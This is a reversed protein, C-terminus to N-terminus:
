QGGRRRPVRVDGKRETVGIADLYELLPVIAKRSSGLLDRVDSVRVEGRAELHAVVADRAGVLPGRAVLREGVEVLEGDAVLRRLLERDVEPVDMLETPTMGLIGAEEAAAMASRAASARQEDIAGRFSALRVVDATVDVARGAALLRELATRYLPTAAKRSAARLDARPMGARLPWAEHYAALAAVIAEMAADLEGAAVVLGGGIEVAIGEAVLDALAAESAASAHLGALALLESPTAPTAGCERVARLLLERHDGTERVALGEAADRRDRGRHKTPNADLITGGAVTHSPSYTRVVCHDGTAVAIPTELRLQAFSTSGPEARDHEGLVVVRALTEATGTHLRVRQWHEIPQAARPLVRLRVDVMSTPRLSGARCVVEGRELDAREIGQLNLAARHGALARESAAGHVEISRVRTRLGCPLVEVEEGVALCGRDVSGTVVTGFGKVTFVRDVSMKFPADLDRDPVSALLADIERRLDGLGAGTVGSCAVIPGDAFPTGQLTERLDASVLELWAPEVLDAKTLAVLGAGVELLSVIDLHERTQPMVGEDAAVVLVVVDLGTVGAVMNKVFREHGPVDIVSALRGSPLTLPAFGLDISLAREREEKLRDTDVGTLAKTLTTKGHDVHGATGILFHRAAGRAATM